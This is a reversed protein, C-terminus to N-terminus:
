FILFLNCFKIVIGLFLKFNNSSKIKSYKIIGVSKGLLM